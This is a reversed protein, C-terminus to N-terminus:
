NGALFGKSDNWAVVVRGATDAAITVEAQTEGVSDGTADNAQVNTTLPAMESRYRDRLNMKVAPPLAAYGSWHEPASPVPIPGLLPAGSARAALAGAPTMGNWYPASARSGLALAPPTSFQQLLAMVAVSALVTGRMPAKRRISATRIMRVVAPGSGSAVHPQRLNVSTDHPLSLPGANAM